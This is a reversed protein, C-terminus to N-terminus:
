LNIPDLIPPTITWQHVIFSSNEVRRSLKRTCVGFGTPNHAEAFV